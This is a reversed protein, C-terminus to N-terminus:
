REVHQANPGEKWFIFMMDSRDVTGDANLKLYGGEGHLFGKHQMRGFEQMLEPCYMPKGSVEEIHCHESFMIARNTDTM